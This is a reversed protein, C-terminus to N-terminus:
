LIWSQVLLCRLWNSDHIGELKWKYARTHSGTHVLSTHSIIPFYHTFFFDNFLSFAFLIFLNTEHERPINM